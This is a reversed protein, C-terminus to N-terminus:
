VIREKKISNPRIFSMKLSAKCLALAKRLPIMVFWSAPLVPLQVFFGGYTCKSLHATGPHAPCPVPPLQRQQSSPKARRNCGRPAAFGPGPNLLNSQWPWTMGWCSDQRWWGGAASLLLFDEMSKLMHLICIPMARQQNASAGDPPNVGIFVWPGVFSGGSGARQRPRSGVQAPRRHAAVLLETSFLARQM